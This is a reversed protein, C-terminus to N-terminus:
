VATDGAYESLRQALVAMVKREIARNEDLVRRFDGRMLILCRVPTSTTVTATRRVETLLAIEGVFDGSGRTAVHKGGRTVEVTGEVIVFFERGLTDEKCLVTDASVQLDETVRALEVLEKKSLGEFLPAARLADAKNSQSLGGV